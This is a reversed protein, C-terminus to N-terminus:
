VNLFYIQKWRVHQATRTHTWVNLFPDDLEDRERPREVAKWEGTGEVRESADVASSVKSFTKQPHQQFMKSNSYLHTNKQWMNFSNLKSISMYVHEVCPTFRNTWWKTSQKQSFWVFCLHELPNLQTTNYLLINVNLQDTFFVFLKATKCAITMLSAKISQVHFHAQYVQFKSDHVCSFTTLCFIGYM